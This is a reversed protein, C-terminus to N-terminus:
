SPQIAAVVGIAGRHAVSTGFDVHYVTVFPLKTVHALIEAFGVIERGAIWFFELLHLPEEVASTRGRAFKRDTRTYNAGDSKYRNASLEDTKSSPAYTSRSCKRVFPSAFSKWIPCRMALRSVPRCESMTLPTPTWATSITSSAAVGTM